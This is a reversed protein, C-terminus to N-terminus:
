KAYRALLLTGGFYLALLAVGAVAVWVLGTTLAGAASAAAGAAADVAGDFAQAAPSRTDVPGALDAVKMAKLSELQDNFRLMLEKYADARGGAIFPADTFPIMDLHVKADGYWTVWDRWFSKWLERRNAEPSGPPFGDLAGVVSQVHEVAVRAKEVDEWPIATETFSPVHWEFSIGVADQHAHHAEIEEAAGCGRGEACGSCCAGVLGVLPCGEARKRGYGVLEPAPMGAVWSGQARRSQQQVWSM